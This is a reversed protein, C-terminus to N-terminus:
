KFYKISNEFTDPAGHGPYFKGFMNKSFLKFISDWLASEDGGPLDCRGYGGDKFITDGVFTADDIKFCVGGPTHGPTEIAEIFTDGLPLKDQDSVSTYKGFYGGRVGLFGLYCNKVPDSLMDADGQGVIVEAKQTPWTGLAYIHDFHAHTLLIYKLGDLIDPYKKAIVAFDISPDVVAWEGSSEIVYCNSGFYGRPLERKINIMPFDKYM